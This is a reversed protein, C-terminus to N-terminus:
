HKLWVTHYNGVNAREVLQESITIFHYRVYRSLYFLQYCDADCNGVWVVEGFCALAVHIHHTLEAADHIGSIDGLDSGLLYKPQGSLETELAVQYVTAAEHEIRPM